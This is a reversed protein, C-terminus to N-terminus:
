QLHHIKLLIIVNETQAWCVSICYDKLSNKYRDVKSFYGVLELLKDSSDKFQESSL